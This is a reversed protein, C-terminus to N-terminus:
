KGVYDHWDPHAGHARKEQVVSWDVKRRLAARRSGHPTKIPNALHWAATRKAKETHKQHNIEVVKADRRAKRMNKLKSQRRSQGNTLGSM